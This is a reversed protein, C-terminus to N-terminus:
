QCFEDHFSVAGRVPSPFYQCIRHYYYMSPWSSNNDRVPFPLLDRHWSSLYELRFPRRDLDDDGGGGGGGDDDHDRGRGCGGGDDCAGGDRPVYLLAYSHFDVRM